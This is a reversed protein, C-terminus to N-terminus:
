PQKLQEIEEETEKIFKKAREVKKLDVPKEGLLWRLNTINWQLKFEANALPTNHM